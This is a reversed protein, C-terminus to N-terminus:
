PEVQGLGLDLATYHRRAVEAKMEAKTCNELTVIRPEVPPVASAIVIAKALFVGETDTVKGKIELTTGDDMQMITYRKGNWDYSRLPRPSSLAVGALVAILMLTIKRGTMDM